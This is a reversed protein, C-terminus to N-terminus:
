APTKCMDTGTWVTTAFNRGSTGPIQHYLRQELRHGNKRLLIIGSTADALRTTALRRPMTLRAVARAVPAHAVLLLLVAEMTLVLAAVM